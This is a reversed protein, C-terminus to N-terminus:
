ADPDTESFNVDFVQYFANPTDAVIWLLILM